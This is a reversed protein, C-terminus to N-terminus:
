GVPQILGKRMHELALYYIVKLKNVCALAHDLGLNTDVFGISKGTLDQKIPQQDFWADKSRLILTNLHERKM